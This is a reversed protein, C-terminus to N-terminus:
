FPFGDHPVERRRVAGGAWASVPEAGAARGPVDAGADRRDHRGRPGARGRNRLKCRSDPADPFVARLSPASGCFGGAYGGLGLCSASILPVGAAHCLDSLMYSVAYSDACDLVLDAGAVREPATAPTLAETVVDVTIEPNIARCRSAAVEAKPRDCDAQTFLTQRHLNSLSVVDGDVITIRGVGAGALLPLAPAGLGGAGVVLVRAAALRKQGAPGVQPLIIQRAYRSM